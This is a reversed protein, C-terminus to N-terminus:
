LCMRSVATKNLYSCSEVYHLLEVSIRSATQIKQSGLLVVTDGFIGISSFGKCFFSIISFEAYSYSKRWQKRREREGQHIPDKVGASNM